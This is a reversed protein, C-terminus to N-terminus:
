LVKGNKKQSNLSTTSERGFPQGVMLSYKRDLTHEHNGRKIVFWALQKQQLQHLVSMIFQILAREERSSLNNRSEM